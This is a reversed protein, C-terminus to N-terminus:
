NHRFQLLVFSHPPLQLSGTRAIDTVDQVDFRSPPLASDNHYLLAQTCEGCASFEVPKPTDFSANIVTATLSGQTDATIVTDQSSHCLRGGIHHKMAAMVQGQATLAAGDPRVDIMGENVAEFHCVLAIGNDGAEEFFMHMALAAHIGDTVSTPRYWAYWVNWEDFSIQTHPDLMSRLKHILERMTSVGSLCNYYDAEASAEGTVYPTQSYHHLSVLPVVGAMPRAALEAWDRNPYPGSSCLSLHPSVELMKKANELAIRCYGGPTNDGEMHGYGMENGLSWFQVNYPEAFGRRIRLRGYETTDDGNCYEVWAANEEPTNWCPNITIFPQAGIARCLAIFEDIGVEHFDYGLTHPQTELGLYSQLPARMDVPLLGDFWCYEGAFNGGPWRLVRVAMEKLLAIVDRRMGHYHDAPLLSVAGYCIDAADQTFIRLDADKDTIEPTLELELRTWEAADVTLTRSDYVTTGSHDTLAVQLTFPSACKVAVAAQYTHGAQVCLGHQGIGAAQGAAPNRVWQANCELTRKMHYGTEAHRTYTQGFTFAFFAHEGIPFWELACGTVSPKGAFKRNRLMQASLGQYVSSRTHELNSGFFCPSVTQETPPQLTLVVPRAYDVATPAPKEEPIFSSRAPDLLEGNLLEAVSIHLVAALRSFLSADPLSKGREWKSVAKDTIDLQRALETQTMGLAARQETILHGTKVINM